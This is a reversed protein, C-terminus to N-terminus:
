EIATEETKENWRAIKALLISLFYLAILPAMLLSMNIPDPTPTIIAAAVAIIVIAIRWQQLLQKASIMKFKALIFMFLPTEFSVGIWFLMNTVFSFYNNPRPMTTIGMFSVLFPLAAPLMVYFAFAVGGLFMATAFPLSIFIWRKESPLLGPLIYALLEYMIVPFAMIFGALLSVKMFVSINETVEISVLAKIGGIPTALYDILRDSFAFSISTTIVLAIVARFLRTRLEGIHGWIDMEQDKDAM